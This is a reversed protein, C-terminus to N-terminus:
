NHPISKYYQLAKFILELVLAWGTAAKIGIIVMKFKFKEMENKFDEMAKMRKVLGDQGFSNGQFAQYLENFKLYFDQHNKTVEKIFNIQQKRIEELEQRILLIDHLSKEDKEM